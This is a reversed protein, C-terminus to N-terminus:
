HETRVIGIAGSPARRTAFGTGSLIRSLAGDASLDGQAGRTKVGKLAVSSVILEVGTQTTYADLAAKLDGAPINFNEALAVGGLVMFAASGALLRFYKYKMM